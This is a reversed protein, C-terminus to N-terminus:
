GFGVGFDAEVVAVLGHGRSMFEADDVEGGVLV